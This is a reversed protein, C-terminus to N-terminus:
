RQLSARVGRRSIVAIGLVGMGLIFLPLSSPEPTRVPTCGSVCDGKVNPESSGLSTGYQFTINSITPTGSVIPMTFVVANKILASKTVGTNGTTLDDGASTIGFQLGDLALPDQLNLGNFNPSGFINLGTSSIGANAGYQNLGALYEWEGGVNGGGTLNCANVDCNKQYVVVSGTKLLASGGTTTVTAGSLTFFVGTLVDSPQLVDKTSTNTLTVVLNGSNVVFSVSAALNGSTGTFTIPLPSANTTSAAIVVALPLSMLVFLVKKWTTMAIKEEIQGDTSRTGIM